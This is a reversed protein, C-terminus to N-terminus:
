IRVVGDGTWSGILKWTWHVMVPVSASLLKERNALKNLADHVKVVANATMVDVVHGDIKMCQHEAVIERLQELRIESSPRPSAEIAQVQAQMDAPYQEWERRENDDM